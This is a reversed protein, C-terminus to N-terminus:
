RRAKRRPEFEQCEATLGEPHLFTRTHDHRDMYTCSMNEKNRVRSWKCNMCVKYPVLPKSLITRQKWKELEKQKQAEKCCAKSCYKRMRIFATEIQVLKGCM